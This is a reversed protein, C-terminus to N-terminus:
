LKNLILTKERGWVSSPLCILKEKSTQVKQGERGTVLIARAVEYNVPYPTLSAVSSFWSLHSKVPM